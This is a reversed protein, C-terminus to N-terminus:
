RVDAIEPPSRLRHGPACTQTRCVLCGFQHRQRVREGGTKSVPQGLDAFISCKGLETWVALSLNSNFVLLVFIAGHGWETHMCDHDRCLMVWVVRELLDLGVKLLVNDLRNNRSLVEILVGDVMQVWGAGKDHSSRFSITAECAALDDNVGIASPTGM